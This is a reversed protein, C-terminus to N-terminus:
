LSRGSVPAPLGQEDATPPWHSSPPGCAPSAPAGLVDPYELGPGKEPLAVHGDYFAMNVGENHRYLTPMSGVDKYPMITDQQLVDWGKEYNAGKWWFWWDNSESFSGPPPRHPRDREQPRCLRLCLIGFLVLGHYQLRLQDMFDMRSTLSTGSGLTRIARASSSRPPTGAVTGRVKRIRIDVLTRFLQNSPWGVQDTSGGGKPRYMIPVYWGDAQKPTCPRQGNGSDPRSQQLAIRKGLEKARLLAPM